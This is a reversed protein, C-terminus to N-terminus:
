LIEKLKEVVEIDSPLWRVSGIDERGLVKYGLIFLPIYIIYYIIGLYDVGPIQPVHLYNLLFMRILMAIGTFGSSYLNMPSIITNVGVAFLVNGGIVLLIREALRKKKETTDFRNDRPLGVYGRPCNKIDVRKMIRSVLKKRMIVYRSRRRLVETYAHM